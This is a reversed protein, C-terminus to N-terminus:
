TFFLLVPHVVSFHSSHHELHSMQVSVRLSSALLPVILTSHPCLSVLSPTNSFHSSRLSCFPLPLLHLCFGLRLPWLFCKLNWESYLPFGNSPKSCLLLTTKLLDGVHSHLLCVIPIWPPPLLSVLQSALAHDLGSPLMLVHPKEHHLHHSPILNQTYKASLSIPSLPNM